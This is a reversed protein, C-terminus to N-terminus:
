DMRQSRPRGCRLADFVNKMRNLFRKHWMRVQMKSMTDDGWVDKLSRWCEIPSKGTKVFFKLTVRQENRGTLRPNVLFLFFGVLVSFMTCFHVFGFSLMVCATSVFDGSLSHCVVKIPDYM